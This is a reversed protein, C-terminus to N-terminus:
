DPSYRIWELCLGTPPLTPGARARDRSAIIAPIDDPSLRGRGVNVLTGAIIRVMNWLFGSGSVDIRVRDTAPSSVGCSFITRVTTLRGHGSAAFASFDHEGVLGAAAANMAAVDLPEWVQHVYRRDWLARERSAHITYSYGKAVTDGTPDFTPPVARAETILVDDPLRGNLARVLRETGRSLPWGAGRPSGAETHPEPDDGSCSFAAVQGRAHVGADTRSSGKLTVRERVIECVAQEVIHQVTRLQVRAGDARDQRGVIMSEPVGPGDSPEQKQWGCFDTGDYAITLKYRPM